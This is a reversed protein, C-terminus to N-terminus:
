KRRIMENGIWIPLQKELTSFGLPTEVAKQRVKKISYRKEKRKYNNTLAKLSLKAQNTQADIDIIKVQVKQGVHVFNEINKVFGSSIESIHILGNIQNGINVFAGYAQIGTVEGDVVDGIKFNTEIVIM